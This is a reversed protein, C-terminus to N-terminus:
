PLPRIVLGGRLAEGELPVSVMLPSSGLAVRQAWVDLLWAVDAESAVVGTRDPGGYEWDTWATESAWAVHLAGPDEFFGQGSRFVAVKVVTPTVDEGKALLEGLVEYATRSLAEADATCDVCSATHDGARFTTSGKDPPPQGEDISDDTFTPWADLDLRARLDEIDAPSLTGTRWASWAGGDDSSQNYALFTCDTDISWVAQGLPALLESFPEMMGGGISWGVAGALDGQCLPIPDTDTGGDTDADTDTGPDPTQCAVLLAAALSSLHTRM